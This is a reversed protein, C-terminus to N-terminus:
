SVYLKKLVRKAQMKQLQKLVLLESFFNDISLHTLIKNINQDGTRTVNKALIETRM